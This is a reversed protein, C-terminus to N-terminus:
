SYLVCSSGEDPGASSAIDNFATPINYCLGPSGCFNQCTGAWSSDSCLYLCIISPADEKPTPAAQIYPILLLAPLTAMSQFIKMTAPNPQPISM